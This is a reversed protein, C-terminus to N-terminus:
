DWRRCSHTFRSTYSLMMLASQQPKVPPAPAATTSLGFLDTILSQMEDPNFDSPLPSRAGSETAKSRACERVRAINLATELGLKLGEDYVLTRDRSCLAAYQPVLFAKDVGNKQYLAIRDIDDMDM